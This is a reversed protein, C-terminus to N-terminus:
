IKDERLEDLVRRSSWGPPAPLPPPLTRIARAPRAARGEAIMRAFWSDEAPVPVLLAVPRGHETIELREGNKVRALHRRLDLRLERLGVSSQRTTMINFM